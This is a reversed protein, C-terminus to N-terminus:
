WRRGRHRRVSSRDSDAGEECSGGAGRRCARGRRKKPDHGLVTPMLLAVMVLAIAFIVAIDPWSLGVVFIPILMGIALVIAIPFASEIPLNFPRVLAFALATALVAAMLRAISFRLRPNATMPKM